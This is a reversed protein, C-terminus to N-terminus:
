KGAKPATLLTLTDHVFKTGGSVILGTVLADVALAFPSDGLTHPKSLAHLGFVGLYSCALTAIAALPFAITPRSLAASAAAASAADSVKKAAAKSKASPASPDSAPATATAGAIAQAASAIAKAQGIGITPPLADVDAKLKKSAPHSDDTLAKTDDGAIAKKIASTGSAGWRWGLIEGVREAAASLLIVGALAVYPTLPTFVEGPTRSFKVSLKDAAWLSLGLLVVGALAWWLPERVAPSSPAPPEPTAPAPAKKGAPPM